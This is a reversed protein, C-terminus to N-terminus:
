AHLSPRGTLHLLVASRLCGLLVMTVLLLLAMPLPIFRIHAGQLRRPTRARLVETQSRVWCDQSQSHEEKQHPAWSQPTLQLHEPLSMLLITPVAGGQRVSRRTRQPGPGQPTSDTGRPSPVRLLHKQITPKKRRKRATTGTGGSKLIHMPTLTTITMTPVTMAKQQNATMATPKGTTMRQQMEKTRRRQRTDRLRMTNRNSSTLAVPRTMAREKRPHAGSNSGNTMLAKPHSRKPRASRQERRTTDVFRALAYCSKSLKSFERPSLNRQKTGRWKLGCSKM